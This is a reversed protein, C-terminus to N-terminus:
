PSRLWDLHSFPYKPRLEGSRFSKYYQSKGGPPTRALSELTYGEAIRLRAWEYSVYTFNAIADAMCYSVGQVEFNVNNRTNRSNVASTVWRLNGIEYDKNNNERDLQLATDFNPLATVYELFAEFTSFECTIGRGGYMFYHTNKPNTCRDVIAYFRSQLLKRQRRSLGDNIRRTKPSRKSKGSVLNDYSKWESGLGGDVLVYRYRGSTRVESSVVRWAGFMQGVTVLNPSGESQKPM